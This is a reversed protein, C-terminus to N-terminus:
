RDGGMYGHVWGRWRPCSGTDGDCRRGHGRAAFVWHGQRSKAEEFVLSIPTGIRDYFYMGGNTAGQSVLTIATNRGIPGHWVGETPSSLTNSCTSSDSLLLCKGYDSLYPGLSAYSRKFAVDGVDDLALIMNPFECSETVSLAKGWTYARYADDRELCGKYADVQTNRDDEMGQYPKEFRRPDPHALNARVAKTLMADVQKKVFARGAPILLDSETIRQGSQVDFSISYTEASPHAGMYEASIALTLVRSDARIVEFSLWTTGSEAEDDSIMPTPYHGPVWGMLAYQIDLNIRAAV